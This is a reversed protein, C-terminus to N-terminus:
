GHFPVGAEDVYERELFDLKEPEDSQSPVPMRALEGFRKQCASVDWTIPSNRHAGRFFHVGPTLHGADILRLLQSKSRGLAQVADPTRLM